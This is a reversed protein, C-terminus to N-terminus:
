CHLIFKPEELTVKPHYAHPSHCQRLELLVSMNDQWKRKSSSGAMGSEDMGQSELIRLRSMAHNVIYELGDDDRHSGHHRLIKTVTKSIRRSLSRKNVYEVAPIENWKRQDFPVFMMSVPNSQPSTTFNKWM